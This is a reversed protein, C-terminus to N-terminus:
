SSRRSELRRLGKEFSQALPKGKTAVIMRGILKGILSTPTREWHIEVRTGGDARPRLTASVVSGPASFNSELVTWRITQPDSWDYRERAWFGGLLPLKTGERIEATTDGVSYVEYYSPAIGPWLEPRRPTFDLLAERVAEPPLTTEVATDVKLVPAHEMESSALDLASAISCAEVAVVLLVFTDTIM